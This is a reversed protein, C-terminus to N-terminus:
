VHVPLTRSLGLTSFPHSQLCFGHAKAVRIDAGDQFSHLLAYPLHMLQPQPLGGCCGVLARRMYFSIACTNCQTTQETRVRVAQLAYIAPVAFSM